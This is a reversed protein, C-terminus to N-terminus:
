RHAQLIKAFDFGQPTQAAWLETRNETGGTAHGDNSRKITDTVPMVPLAAENDQLTELVADIVAASVLPRAADHILVRDPAEAPLVELEALVSLQRTDGGAVPSLLQRADLSLDAYLEAHERSIVPVIWDVDDRNACAEASHQFIPKGALAVYQKPLL